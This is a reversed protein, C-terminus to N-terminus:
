TMEQPDVDVSWRVKRASKLEELAPIANTLWAQLHQRHNSRVLLQARFKGARRAMPAPIPGLLEVKEYAFAQSAQKLFQAPLTESVAEARLMAFYRFPPLGAQQRESLLANAFAAYGEKLLCQLLPHEPNHTQIYVEGEKEARGARGSVQMILQAMRETARFDTSYLGGDGDIIGVMTVDPFHHGKSLMQTGLLIRAKGSHVEQLLADLAGKKRTTDRDIRVLEVGPFHKKIVEELKETGIGCQLLSKTKCDPCVSPLPKIGGCHHCILKAPNQHLTYRASCRGCEASWGCEHCLLVPAFGRRNLFLLVQGKNDLHKKVAELLGPSINEELKQARLDILHFHPHTAGGVREPLQLHTFNKRTINHLSELSPTASGLVVPIKEIQARKIAVDRASYRLGSQQKFSPDHSEDLIIVGLDPIPTFLASRTGIIIKAKGWYAESWALLRQKDTLGSHLVSVPVNFRDTFRSVTQPTLSIEPVLVLARKNQKIKEAIIQLYVETKGSGTVGELLYTQFNKASLIEKVANKQAETLTPENTKLSRTQNEETIDPLAKGQRLLKPLASTMVEGIPYHYYEAVWHLLSLLHQTFLPSQDLISLAQKLKDTPLQSQKPDITEVLVGVLERSGFPVKVRVGPQLAGAEKDGVPLYDFLQRLVTPVAVRFMKKSESMKEHYLLPVYNQLQM